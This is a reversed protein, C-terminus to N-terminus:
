FLAQEDRLLLTEVAGQLTAVTEDLTQPPQELLREKVEDMYENLVGYKSARPMIDRAGRVCAGFTDGVQKLMALREKLEVDESADIEQSTRVCLGIVNTLLTRAGEEIERSLPISSARSLQWNDGKAKAEHRWSSVTEQSVGLKAATEADGLRLHVYYNRAKRRMEESYAM